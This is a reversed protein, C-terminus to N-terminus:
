LMDHLGPADASPGYISPVTSGMPRLYTSLQGRHHISDFLFAWLTRGLAMDFVPHGMFTFTARKGWAADDLKRLREAVAAHTKEYASVLAAVPPLEGPVLDSSGSDILETMAMAEGVLTAAVEKATRAKPDPRYDSREEPIASLVRLTGPGEAVWREVFYDRNSMPLRGQM